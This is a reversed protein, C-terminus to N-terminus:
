KKILKLYTIKAPTETTSMGGPKATGRELPSPSTKIRVIYAASPLNSINFHDSGTFTAVTRGNMDMVLIELVKDSTGVVSGGSLPNSMEIAVGSLPNSMEIAVEGTTPNPKLTLDPSNSASMGVPKGKDLNPNVLYAMFWDYLDESSICYSRKCLQGNTCTIAYFCLKDGNAIMQSLVAMDIMGLGSVAGYGDFLYNILMPPETWFALLSQAPSVDAIFNFYGAVSSSLSTNITFDEISLDFMCEFDTPMLDISFDTACDLCADYLRFSVTSSPTFHSVMINMRFTYCDNPALTQSIFNNSTVIISQGGFLPRMYELCANDDSNNCVTVDVTYYVICGEVYWTYEYSINLGECDCTDKQNITLVPSSVHCNGSNYDVDLKYNGFGQLPLETSYDPCYLAENHITNSNLQWDIDIRDRGSTLGNVPLNPSDAFFSPCKEYCGTLLADFDPEQDIYIKADDSKCGTNPDYYWVTAYGPTFYYATNGFSGNSWHLDNTLPSSAVLEVPPNDLCLRTGFSLSPAPPTPHVTIYVTSADADCGDQNTVKLDITYTGAVSPSLSTTATTPYSLNNNPDKITWKYTYDNSDPGTAGYLMVKDGLCCEQMDAVIIAIPRNKFVVEKEAHEKCFHNDTVIISYNASYYTSCSFQNTYNGTNWTCEANSPDFLINLSSFKLTRSSIYPCVPEGDVDLLGIKIVNEFSEISITQSVLCGNSGITKATLTYPSRVYDYTHSFTNGDEDFFTGDGFTWTVSSITAGSSLRATLTLPLNDCTVIPNSGNSATIYLEDDDNYVVTELPCNIPQTLQFTYSGSSSVPYPYSLNSTSFSITSPTGGNMSVSMQISTSGNQYKSRNNIIIENCGTEFTFIPIFTVNQNHVSIECNPGSSYATIHYNAADRFTIEVENTGSGVYTKSYEGGEVSWRVPTASVLTKLHLTASCPDYSILDWGVTDCPPAPEDFCNSLTRTCGTENDTIVCEYCGYGLFGITTSLANPLPTGNYSWAYSYTSSPPVTVGVTGSNSNYYPGSANPLPLVLVRATATKYYQTNTCYNLTSYKLTVTHLGPSSFTYSFPSGYHITNSEDTTWYFSTVSNGNVSFTVPKGLCVVDYDQVINADGLDEEMIIFPITDYIITDCYRRELTIYFRHNYNTSIHNNVALTITNTLADGLVSAYEQKYQEIEWKYLFGEQYPVVDNGLVVKTGPCVTVPTDIAIPLPLRQTVIYPFSDISRCQLTRDYTFTKINCIKNDYSITVENGSIEDPSGHNNEPRWVITYDPNQPNAKLLIGSNLCATHPSNPDFDLATPAPPADVVTLVFTAERCYNNNVATVLYKGTSTFTHNMNPTASYTAVVQNANDMDYITWNASVLPSTSLNCPNSLCIRDKGTIALKPKVTITFTESTFEGCELFECKYSVTIRYEGPRTFIYMQENASNVDVPDAGIGPNISWNYETSGFLPISFIVAEDVCAVSQGKISINDEIIPIKKSLMAPCANNGCLNGDIGITGYGNQPNDWQVTVQQTNQGSLITGGEVYWFFQNCLPSTAKYTVVSGECVTGYCGLNLSEGEIMSIVYEEEDYCGCNNYVRHTVHDDMWVNGISYNPTSSTGGMQSQWLYGVIDTNTTSSMEIFEVTEGKCVYIVKTGDPLVVYAPITVVSIEPKEILKVNVTKTCSVDNPGYVTVTLQGTTGNGWTVTITGNNNDTYSLAGAVAWVWSVPSLGGMNVNASYTITMGQCAILVDPEEDYYDDYKILPLICASEFDGVISINCPYENQPPQPPQPPDVTPPVQQVQAVANASLLCLLLLAWLRCLKFLHYNKM